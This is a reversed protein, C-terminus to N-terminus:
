YRYWIMANLHQNENSSQKLHNFSRPLSLFPKKAEQRRPKPDDDNQKRIRAQKEGPGKLRANELANLIKSFVNM